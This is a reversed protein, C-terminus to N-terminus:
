KISDLAATDESSHEKVGGRSTGCITGKYATLTFVAYGTIKNKGHVLRAALRVQETNEDRNSTGVLQLTVPSGPAIASTDGHFRVNGKGIGKLPTYTKTAKCTTVKVQAATNATLGAISKHIFSVLHKIGYEKTSVLM